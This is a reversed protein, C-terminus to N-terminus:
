FESNLIRNKQLLHLVEITAKNLNEIALKINWNKKNREGVYNSVARLQLFPVKETLCVYHFAAGEM